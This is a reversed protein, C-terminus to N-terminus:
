NTVSATKYATQPSTPQSIDKKERSQASHRKLIIYICFLSLFCIDKTFEQTLVEYIAFGLVIM